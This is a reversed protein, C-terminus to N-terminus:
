LLGPFLAKVRRMYDAYAAGFQEGMWREELRLKYWFSAAVHSTRDSAAHRDTEARRDDPAM